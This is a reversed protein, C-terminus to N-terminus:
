AITNHGAFSAARTVLAESDAGYIAAGDSPLARLLATKEDAVGDLSGLKEAHALSVTTVVGIEPRGVYALWAIEGPGGTGIEVVALDHQAGLGFLTMPLGIENNLNGETSLVRHGLARLAAATLEKTTTKGASGTIAILKGGWRTRHARALEGLARRTDPVVVLPLGAPAKDETEVLAAAAGQAASPQLFRHGDHHEGRLAVYLQGPKVARSDTVVGRISAEAKSASVRGGTCAAIEELTFAAENAPIATAM